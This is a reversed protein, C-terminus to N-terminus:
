DEIRDCQRYKQSTGPLCCFFKSMLCDLQRVVLQERIQLFNRVQLEISQRHWGLITLCGAIASSPPFLCLKPGHCYLVTSMQCKCRSRIRIQLNWHWAAPLVLTSTMRLASIHPLAESSNHHCTGAICVHVYIPLM